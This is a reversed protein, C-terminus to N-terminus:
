RPPLEDFISKMKWATFWVKLLVDGSRKAHDSFNVPNHEKLNELTIFSNTDFTASVMKFQDEAGGWAEGFAECTVPHGNL